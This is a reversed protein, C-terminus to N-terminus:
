HTGHIITPKIYRMFANSKWRGLTAIQAYSARHKAMDTAKGIRFSHTNYHAPNLHQTPLLTQLVQAIQQRSIASKDMNSFAHGHTPGRSNIYRRYATVPCILNGTSYVVMPTPQSHSHKYSRFDIKIGEGKNTNLIALQSEKLTHDAQPTKCIESARLAAHYMLTFIATYLRRDFRGYGQSNLASILGSLIKSTIPKRISAPAEIKSNSILLKKVLFSTTPDPQDRIKHFFAIASLHSRITSSKLSFQTLHTIYLAVAYSTAPM